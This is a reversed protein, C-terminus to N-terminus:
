SVLMIRMMWSVVASTLFGFLVVACLRHKITPLAVFMAQINSTVVFMSTLIVLLLKDEGGWIHAAVNFLKGYSSISLVKVGFMVSGWVTDVQPTRSRTTSDAVTSQCQQLGNRNNLWFSFCLLLMTVFLNVIYECLTVALMALFQQSAVMYWQLFPLEDVSSCRTLCQWRIYTDSLAFLILLRWQIQNRRNFLLHRFAKTKHLLVDLLILVNDYEVYSDINSTCEVCKSLKVIGNKFSKYLTPAAFGCEVCVYGGGGGLM